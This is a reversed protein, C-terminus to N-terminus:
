LLTSFPRVLRSYPRVFLNIAPLLDDVCYMIIATDDERLEPVRSACRMRFHLLLLQRSFDRTSMSSTIKYSVDTLVAQIHEM